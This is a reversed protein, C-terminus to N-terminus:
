ETGERKWPGTAARLLGALLLGFWVGFVFALVAWGWSIM